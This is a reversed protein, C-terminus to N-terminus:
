SYMGSSELMQMILSLTLQSASGEPLQAHGVMMSADHGISPPSLRVRTPRM